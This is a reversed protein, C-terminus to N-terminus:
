RCLAAIILSLPLATLHSDLTRVHGRRGTGGSPETMGLVGADPQTNALVLFSDAIPANTIFTKTGTIKYSSGAETAVTLISNSLDSGGSPETVALSIVLDGKLAPEVYNRVLEPNGSAAIIPLVTNSLIFLTSGLGLSGHEALVAAVRMAANLGPKFISNPDNVRLGLLGLKGAEAFLRRQCFHDGSVLSPRLEHYIRCLELSASELNKM